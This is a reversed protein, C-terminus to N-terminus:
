HTAAPQPSSSMRSWRPAAQWRRPTRPLPLSHTAGVLCNAFPTPVTSCASAHPPSALAHMCAHSPTVDDLGPHRPGTGQSAAELWRYCETNVGAPSLTLDSRRLTDVYRGLTAQLRVGGADGDGVHALLPAVAIDIPERRNPKVVEPPPLTLELAPPPSRIDRDPVPDSTSGNLRQMSCAPRFRYVRCTRRDGQPGVADARRDRVGPRCASGATDAAAGGAVLQCLGVGGATPCVLWTISARFHAPLTLM